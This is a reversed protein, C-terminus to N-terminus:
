GPMRVWASILRIPTASATAMRGYLQEDVCSLPGTARDSPADWPACPRRETDSPDIVRFRVAPLGFLAKTTKPDNLGYRILWCVQAGKDQRSQTRKPFDTPVLQVELSFGPQELGLESRRHPQVFIDSRTPWHETVADYRLTQVIRLVRNQVWRHMPTMPGGPRREEDSLEDDFAHACGRDGPKFKFIRPNHKNELCEYSTLEVNCGPEPCVLPPRPRTRVMEWDQPNGVWLPASRPNHRLQAHRKRDSHDCPEM